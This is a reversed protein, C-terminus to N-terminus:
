ELPQRLNLQMMQGLRWAPQSVEGEDDGRRELDEVLDQGYEDDEDDVDFFGGFKKEYLHTLDHHRM